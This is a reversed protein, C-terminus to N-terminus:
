DALLLDILAFTQLADSPASMPSIRTVLSNGSVQLENMM